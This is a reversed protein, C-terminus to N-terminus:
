YPVDIADCLFRMFPKAKKIHDLITKVPDGETFDKTSLPAVAIYDIRRLDTIMPHDKAYDRPSTKLSEGSLSYMTNFAKNNAMQKQMLDGMKILHLDDLQLKVQRTQDLVVIQRRSPALITVEHTQPGKTQLDFVLGDSFLTTNETASQSQGDFYIQTEIRFQQGLGRATLVSSLLIAIFFAFRM